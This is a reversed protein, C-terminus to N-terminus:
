VAGEKPKKKAQYMEVYKLICAKKQIRIRYLTQKHYLEVTNKANIIMSQIDSFAFYFEKGHLTHLRMGEEELQLSFQKSLITLSTADGTQFLVGVDHPYTLTSGKESHSYEKQWAHWSAIDIFPHDTKKVVLRDYEDLEYLLSCNRCSITNGKGVITNVSLCDPCLYLVQEVGECRHKGLYPLRKEHQWKRYSHDIQQHLLEHLQSVSLQSIQDPYIPKLVRIFAKGKRKKTAWRPKLGYVGELSLVVIPVNFIKVLKAIAEDFGVPEGDWSRTGEPFVGVVDGEKLAEKMARITFLDSRGQQKSIAGIWRRMLPRLGFLKFLYAGAVWRIHYPFASSIFFPDFTHVHNAMVLFPPKLVALHEKDVLTIHRSKLLYAGYTPQALRIFLPKKSVLMGETLFISWATSGQGGLFIFLSNFLLKAREYINKDKEQKPAVM